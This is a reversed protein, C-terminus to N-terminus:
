SASPLDVAANGGGKLGLMLRNGDLSVSEVAGTGTKYKVPMSGYGPMFSTVTWTTKGNSVIYLSGDMRALGAPKGALKTVTHAAAKDVSNAILSVLTWTGKRKAFAYEYDALVVKAKTGSACKSVRDDEGATAEAADAADVGDYLLVNRVANVLGTVTVFALVAGILVAALYVYRLRQPSQPKQMARSRYVKGGAAARM